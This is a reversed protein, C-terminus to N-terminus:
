EDPEAGDEGEEDDEDGDDEAKGNIAEAEPVEEDEEVDLPDPEKYKVGAKARASRPTGRIALEVDSTEEDSIAKSRTLRTM